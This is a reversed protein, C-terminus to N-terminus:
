QVDLRIWDYNSAGRQLCIYSYDNNSQGVVRIEGRRNYDCTFSGITSGSPSVIIGGNVQLKAQPNTTGIGVNGGNPNLLIDGNNAVSDSSQISFGNGGTHSMEAYYNTPYTDRDYIFKLIDSGGSNNGLTIGGFVDLKAGPATTGIGVNGGTALVLQNTGAATQIKLFDGASDWGMFGYTGGSPADGVLVLPDGGSEIGWYDGNVELETGPSATGIGVNGGAYNIGGTASDWYSTGVDDGDALGAPVSTLDAWDLSGDFSTATVVGGVDLTTAPTANNIGVRTQANDPTILAGLKGGDPEGSPSSPWTIAYVSGALILSTLVFGTVNKKM